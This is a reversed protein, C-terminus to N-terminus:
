LLVGEGATYAPRSFVAVDGRQLTAVYREGKSPMRIPQVLVALPVGPPAYRAAHEGAPQWHARGAVAAALEPDAIVAAGYARTLVGAWPDPEPASDAPMPAPWRPVITM